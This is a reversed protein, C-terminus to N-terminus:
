LNNRRYNHWCPKDLSPAKDADLGTSFLSFSSLFAVFFSSGLGFTSSFGASSSSAPPNPSKNPYIYFLL